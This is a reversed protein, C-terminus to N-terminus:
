TINTNEPFFDRQKIVALKRIRHQGVERVAFIYGRYEFEPKEQITPIRKLRGIMFGSLTDYDEIPLPIDLVDQADHLSMTGSFLYNGEAVQEFELEESDHEDYINGVIEELLDEMTVIGATGGYEDVIVAMQIRNQQMEEFLENTKRSMPVFHPPTVMEQLNWNEQEGGRLYRLLDKSHLIGIVNDITEEYVPFRTYQEKDALEAVTQQDAEVPIGVVHIRHTMIEDVTLNDFDFINNIMLKEIPQITGMETGTDLMMRIEEESVEEDNANPDIGFLRVILNTSGTLLKVFPATVKSLVMLTTAALMAMSEARKMAVRKPVLEGLVLQFYSLLLTIVILSITSLVSPALPVGLLILYAALDGAFSEGAFASAFFGALTIGIQITALFKSPEGLLGLIIKAKRHGQQAMARIKNDNLSILAIESAAFFANILILVLIIFLEVLGM